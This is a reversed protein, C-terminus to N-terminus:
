HPAPARALTLAWVALAGAQFLAAGCAELTAGTTCVDDVLVARRGALREDVCGFAGSVNAHREVAGLSMQPLTARTRQLCGEVLPMHVQSALRGALVAAQDYGRERLRSAHLPVPVIVDVPLPYEMWYAALLQGLPEALRAQGAYKFAHIARRLPGEFVLASRLGDLGPPRLRCTRCLQNHPQARGCKPCLPPRLWTLSAQCTACWAAGARGCGACRLPFLANLVLTRVGGALLRARQAM